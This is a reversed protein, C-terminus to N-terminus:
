TFFLRVLDHANVAHVTGTLPHHASSRLIVTRESGPALHFYDDDPLYGPADFHVGLALRQTRLTVEVTTDDAVKAEASLGV